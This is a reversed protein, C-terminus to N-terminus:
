REWLRCYTKKALMLAAETGILHVGEINASVFIGPRKEPSINGKLGAIQIVYIEKGSVSKGIKILKVLKPNEHAWNNLLMKVETPTHYKSFDIGTNKANAGSFGMSLVLLFILIYRQM